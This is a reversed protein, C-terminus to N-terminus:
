LTAIYSKCAICMMKAVRLTMAVNGPPPHGRAQAYVTRHEM